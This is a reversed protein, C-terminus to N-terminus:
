EVRMYQVPCFGNVPSGQKTSFDTAPFSFCFFTNAVTLLPFCFTFFKEEGTFFLVLLFFNQNSGFNLLNIFSWYNPHQHWANKIDNPTQAVEVLPLFRLTWSYLNRVYTRFSLFKCFLVISKSLKLPLLFFNSLRYHLDHTLFCRPTTFVVVGLM